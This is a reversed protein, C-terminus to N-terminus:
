IYKRLTNRTINLASAAKTVNRGYKEYVSRVHRTVVSDLDDPTETPESDDYLGANLQRHETMLKVFDTEKFTVARELINLLERVNGPYDYDTLAAIQEQSLHKRFSEFWWSDAICGIDIKRERLPPVRIQVVNLRMFLDKRFKGERVSAPLDRNTATMLRVNVSIEEKGGMRTFRGGELVRLLLGQAELPLEGIEDLFLTGGNAQEFLGIEQKDAGTFAGKEHGFFRSELLSPNVLACNFPIFPENRRPSRIHIQTAVTEKGTGTEGLILVRALPNEAALNIRERLIKIQDSKGTLERSGYRRFHARLKNVDESWKAEPVNGAIYKIATAYSDHDRYNRYSFMSAALLEHYPQISKPIKKGEVAFPLFRDTNVDFVNGVARVLACDTDAGEEQHVTILPAILEKQSPSMPLSSIWTVKTKKNHKIANALRQEDGGLSMGILIINKWKGGEEEMFEPLRRKSMGMVEANGNLGALAVAASAAYEMWGWGTIILTDM